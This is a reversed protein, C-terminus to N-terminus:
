LDFKGDRDEYTARPPPPDPMIPKADDQPFMWKSTAEPVGFGPPPAAERKRPRAPPLEAPSQAKPKRVHVPQAPQATVVAVQSPAPEPPAVAAPAPADTEIQTEVLADVPLTFREPGRTRGRVVFADLLRRVGPLPIGKVP